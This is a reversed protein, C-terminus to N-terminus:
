QIHMGSIARAIVLHQIESTGEFITFIQAQSHLLGPSLGLLRELPVYQSVVREAVHWSGAPITAQPAGRVTRDKCVLYFKTLTGQFVLHWSEPHDCVKCLGGM